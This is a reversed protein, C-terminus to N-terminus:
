VATVLCSSGSEDCYLSSSSPPLAENGLNECNPKTAYDKTWTLRLPNIGTFDVVIRYNGGGMDLIWLTVQTFGCIAPLFNYVWPAVCSGSTNSLIYTDNLDACDGCDKNTLGSIVVQFQVPACGSSCHDCEVPCEECCCDAHMAVKNNAFLVKNDYFRINGM